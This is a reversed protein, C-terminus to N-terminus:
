NIFTLSEFFGKDATSTAYGGYKLIGIQYLRNGILFDKMEAYYEDNKSKFHIGKYGQLSVTESFENTLKLSTEFGGQAKKLLDQIDANATYTAPYDCYSVMYVLADTEYMFTYITTKGLEDSLTVEQEGKTPTEPFMAKFRGEYSVFLETAPEPLFLMFENVPKAPEVALLMATQFVAILAMLFQKARM